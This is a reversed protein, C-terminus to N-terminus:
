STPEKLLHGEKKMAAHRHKTIYDLSIALTEGVLDKAADRDTVMLLENDIERTLKNWLVHNEFINQLSGGGQWEIEDTHDAKVTISYLLSTTITLAVIILITKANHRNIM